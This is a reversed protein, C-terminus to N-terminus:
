QAVLGLNPALPHSLDLHGLTPVEHGGFLLQVRRVGPCNAVVSNVTAYALTVEIESGAPVDAPPPALDVFADGERDLFVAQVTAPWPFAPALGEHSGATLEDLVLRIRPLEGAPLEPVERAERHLMADDGPFFLVLKGPVPTPVAAPAPAPAPPAPPRRHAALFVVVGLVAAIILTAVIPRLPTM